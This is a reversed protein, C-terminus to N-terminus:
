PQRRRDCLGTGKKGDQTDSSSHEPLGGLKPWVLKDRELRDGTREASEQARAMMEDDEKKRKAEIEREKRLWDSDIETMISSYESWYKQRLHHFAYAEALGHVGRICFGELSMLSDIYSRDSWSLGRIKGRVYDTVIDNVGRNMWYDFDDKHARAEEIRKRNTM